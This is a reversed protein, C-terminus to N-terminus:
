TSGHIMSNRHKWCRLSWKFLQHMSNNMWASASRQPARPNGSDILDQLTKWSKSGMGVLLKDWGIISQEEVALPLLAAAEGHAIQMGEIISDGLPIGLIPQLYYQWTQEIISATRGKHLQKWLGMWDEKRKKLAESNPCCYVHRNTEDAQVCQLCTSTMVVRGQKFLKDQTQLHRHIVKVAM